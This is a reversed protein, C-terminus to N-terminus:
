YEKSFNSPNWVLQHYASDGFKQWEGTAFEVIWDNTRAILSGRTKNDKFQCTISTGDEGVDVSQLCKLGQLTKLNDSHVKISYIVKM